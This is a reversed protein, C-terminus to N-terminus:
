TPRRTIQGRMEGNPHQKTRVQVYANGSQIERLLDGLPKGKLAGELNAATIMGRAQIAPMKSAQTPQSPGFPYLTVVSPGEKGAAGLYIHVATANSLKQLSLIFHMSKGDPTFDFRAGGIAESKVPPVMASGNLYASFANREGWALLPVALLILTLALIKSKMNEEESGSIELSMRM